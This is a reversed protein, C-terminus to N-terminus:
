TLNADISLNNMRSLDIKRIKKQGAFARAKIKTVQYVIGNEATITNPMVIKKPIQKGRLGKLAVQPVNKADGKKIVEFIM